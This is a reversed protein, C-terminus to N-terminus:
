FHVWICFWKGLFHKLSVRQSWMRHKGRGRVELVSGEFLNKWIILTNSHFLVPRECIVRIRDLWKCIWFYISFTFVSVGNRLQKTNRNRYKLIVEVKHVHIPLNLNQHLWFDRQYNQDLLFSFLSLLSGWQPAPLSPHLIMCHFLSNISLCHALWM